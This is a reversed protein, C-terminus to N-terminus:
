KGRERSPLPTLPSPAVVAVCQMLVMELVGELNGMVDNNWFRLVKFGQSALWRDRQRDYDLADAHQGGDIEIVLHCEFCAFDVIYAGIPQQRRFKLGAFRHTRLQRWMLREADTMQARLRRAFDIPSERQHEM